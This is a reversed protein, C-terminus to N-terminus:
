LPRPRKPTEAPMAARPNLVEMGHRLAHDRIRATWRPYGFGTELVTGARATAEFQSTSIVPPSGGAIPPYRGIKAIDDDICFDVFQGIGTYNIFNCQPHSAGIAYLPRPVSSVAVALEDRHSQWASSFGRWLMVDSRGSSDKAPRDTAVGSACWALLNRTDLHSRGEIALVKLGVRRLLRRLSAKCFYHMHEDWLEQVSMHEPIVSSDPVEILAVGKEPHLCRRLSVLFDLPDPVHELVHRCVIAGAYGHSALLRSATEAGFYEVLVEFGRTRAAEGLNRSPEVGVLRRVGAKHLRELFTGDNCGIDFVVQDSALGHAAIGGLLEQAYEPLQAATARDVDTYDRPLGLAERRLLGCSGCLQFALRACALPRDPQDRFLGSTPVQGFDLLPEFM